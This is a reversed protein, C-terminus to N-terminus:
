LGKCTAVTGRLSGFKHKCRMTPSLRLNAYKAVHEQSEIDLCGRYRYLSSESFTMLKLKRSM